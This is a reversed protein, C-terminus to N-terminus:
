RRNKQIDARYKDSLIAFAWAVDIRPSAESIKIIAHVFTKGKAPVQPVRIVQQPGGSPIEVNARPIFLGQHEGVEVLAGYRELLVMFVDFPHPNEALKPDGYDYIRFGLAISTKNNQVSALLLLTYPYEAHTIRRTALIITTDDLSYDAVATPHQLAEIAHVSRVDGPLECEQRFQETVTINGSHIPALRTQKGVPGSWMIPLGITRGLELIKRPLNSMRRPAKHEILMSRRRLYYVTRDPPTGLLLFDDWAVVVSSVSRSCGSGLEREVENIYGRIEPPPIDDFVVRQQPREISLYVAGTGNADARKIQDNAKGIIRRINRPNTGMRIRKAEIWEDSHGALSVRIDPLGDKEVLKASVANSRLLDWCTFAVMQDTFQQPDSVRKRLQRLVEPDDIAELVNEATATRGITLGDLLLNGIELVLVTEDPYHLGTKQTLFATIQDYRQVAPHQVNRRRLSTLGCDNFLLELLKLERTLVPEIPGVFDPEIYKSSM